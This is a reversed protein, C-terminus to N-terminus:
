LITMLETSIENMLRQLSRNKSMEPIIIHEVLERKNLGMVSSGSLLWWCNNETVEMEDSDIVNQDNLLMDILFRLQNSDAEVCLQRIYLFLWHKFDSSSQLALACALRDECHARTIYSQLSHEDDEHLYYMSAASPDMAGRGQSPNSRKSGKVAQDLHALLGISLKSSPVTTYFNSYLFREDTIRTWLEMDRNYIFGQVTGGVYANSNKSHNLVLLLHNSETIFIRSLEPSNVDNNNNHLAQNFCSLCMQNMPDVITGKYKLKLSPAISYVGFSGNSTLVLIEIRPMSEANNSKKEHLSLYVVSSPMVFPTHSRFGIGSNWGSTPSTGYLYVTGDLTGVAILSNCAALSTCHTGLIHDNWTKQGGRNIAVTVCPIGRGFGPPDKTSNTCIAKVITTSTASLNNDETHTITHSPGMSSQLLVNFLRNCKPSVVNQQSQRDFGFTTNTKIQSDVSTRTEKDLSEGNRLKDGERGTHYTKKANKHYIGEAVSAAKQAMDLAESVGKGQQNSQHKSKTRNQKGNAYISVSKESNEKRSQNILTPQIHKKGNKLNSHQTSSDLHRETPQTCLREDEIESDIGPAEENAIKDDDDDNDDEMAFQLVNEILKPGSKDDVLRKRVSDNGLEIGYKLRFIKSTKEQSLICGLENPLDFKLAVLFGDLLSVLMVISQQNPSSQVLGWAIDTVLLFIQLRWM